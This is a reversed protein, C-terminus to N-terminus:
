PIKQQENDNPTILPSSIDTLTEEEKSPSLMPTPNNALSQALLAENM